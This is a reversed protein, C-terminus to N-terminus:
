SVWGHAKAVYALIGVLLYFLLSAPVWVALLRWLHDEGDDDHRLPEFCIPSAPRDSRIRHVRTVRSRPRGRNPYLTSVINGHRRLM